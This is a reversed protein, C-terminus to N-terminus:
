SANKSPHLLEVDNSADLAIAEESLIARKAERLQTSIKADITGADTEIIVGGRDVRQDEVVRMHAVDSASILADRYQRIMEHDAPNVRLTVNERMVLRTLANRVNEVVVDTNNAVETHVIREAIAMALRVLEPEAETIVRGREARISEILDRFTRIVPDLESRAEKVGRAYGDDHGAARAEAEVAAAQERARALLEMATSEGQRLLSEADAAARDVIAEADARLKEWDIEPPAKPAHSEAEHSADDFGSIRSAFLDDSEEPSPLSSASEVKPVGVVYKRDVIRASKVVKGM